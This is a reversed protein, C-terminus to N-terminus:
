LNDYTRHQKGMNEKKKVREVKHEKKKLFFFISKESKGFSEKKFFEEKVIKVTKM